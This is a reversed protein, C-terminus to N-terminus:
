NYQKLYEACESREYEVAIDYTTRGDNTKIKPDAKAEEILYKVSALKGWYAALHLATEGNNSKIKPDAKAEEILCKVSALNGWDAAVHLATDGNADKANVNCGEMKAIISIISTHDEGAAMHLPTMKNWEGKSLLPPNKITLGGSVEKFCKDKGKYAAYHLLSLPNDFAIYIIPNKNGVQQILCKLDEINDEDVAKVLDKAM